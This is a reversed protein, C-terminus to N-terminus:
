NQECINVTSAHLGDTLIENAASVYGFFVFNILPAYASQNIALKTIVNKITAYSGTFKVTADLWKFWHFAPIPFLSGFGSTLIVRGTDLRFPSTKSKEKAYVAVQALTDGLGTVIM